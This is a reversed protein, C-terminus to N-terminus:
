NGKYHKKASSIVKAWFEFSNRKKHTQNGFQSVFRERQYLSFHIGEPGKDFRNSLHFRYFDIESTSLPQGHPEEEFGDIDLKVWLIIAKNIFRKRWYMRYRSSLRKRFVKSYRYAVFPFYSFLYGNLFINDM